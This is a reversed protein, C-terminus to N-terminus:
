IGVFPSWSVWWGWYFMTWDNIWNKPGDPVEGNTVFRGLEEHASAGLKEYADTHWSLQLLSQLYYGLSQVFLNLIFSTKDMLLVIVMLLMGFGFCVESLRRIGMGIGSVTSITAIGTIIWLIILQTSIIIIQCLVSLIDFDCKLFIM